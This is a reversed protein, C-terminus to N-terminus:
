NSSPNLYVGLNNDMVVIHERFWNALFDTLEVLEITSSMNGKEMEQKGSSLKQVFMEHEQRQEPLGPYNNEVMVLEEASFHYKTYDYLEELVARFEAVPNNLMCASYARNLLELLHMHHEDLQKVGLLFRDEWTMYIM